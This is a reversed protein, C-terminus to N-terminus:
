ACPDRDHLRRALAAGTERDTEVLNRCENPDETLDYLESVDDGTEIYKHTQTRIARYHQGYTVCEQRHESASGALLPAFSRADLGKRASLGALECLTPNVDFLEVLAHSVGRTIGPGALILPVRLSAEYATHKQFLGHDGLMEGHDSAFVIITNRCLGKRKLADLILGVQQDILEVKAAYQRRAIRIDEETAHAFMARRREVRAPKGSSESTIASPVERDRYKSGLDSPPDFPDHPSQFSVFMYWPYDDEMGEIRAVAERGVFADQHMEPPLVSDHSAGIIWGKELRGVFDDVYPKFYGNEQLYKTYPGTIRGERGERACAMGGEVELVRTFGYSFNLPRNGHISAPAGPKSLDHRGVLEVRYGADRFHQYHTHSGPALVDENSFAGTRTASLGTALAIRAPACLPSTTCCHTFLMGNRSLRDLNPTDVYAPNLRGLYDYRHQDDILFLINPHATGDSM